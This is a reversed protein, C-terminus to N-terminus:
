TNEKAPPDASQSPGPTGLLGVLLGRAQMALTAAATLPTWLVSELPERGRIALLTRALALLGLSVLAAPLHATWATSATSVASGAAASGAAASSAAASSAAAAVGLALVLVAPLLWAIGFVGLTALGAALSYGVYPYFLRRWAAVIERASRYHRTAGLDAAHVTGVL